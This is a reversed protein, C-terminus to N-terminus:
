DEAPLGDGRRDDRRDDHPVFDGLALGGYRRLEFSTHQQYAMMAAVTAIWATLGWIRYQEDEGAEAEVEAGELADPPAYMWAHVRVDYTREGVEIEVDHHEYGDDRLFLQLPASYVASVEDGNMRIDLESLARVDNLFVVFPTVSLTHKSLVPDLVTLLEARGADIMAPLDVGIEELTERYAADAETEGDDLKGGPFATEGPSRDFRTPAPTLRAFLSRM